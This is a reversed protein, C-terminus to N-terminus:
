QRFMTGAGGGGGGGGSGAPTLLKTEVAAYWERVEDAYSDDDMGAGTPFPLGFSAGMAKFMPLNQVVPGEAEWSGIDYLAGRDSQGYWPEADSQYGLSGPLVGGAYQAATYDIPDQWPSFGAAQAQELPSM